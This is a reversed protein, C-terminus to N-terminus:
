RVQTQEQPVLTSALAALLHEDLSSFEGNLLLETALLEDATDIECAARGQVWAHHRPWVDSGSLMHHCSAPLSLLAFDPGSLRLCAASHQHGCRSSVNVGLIDSCQGRM